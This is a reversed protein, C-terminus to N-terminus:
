ALYAELKGLLETWGREHNDRATADVFQAHHFTLLTGAGDPELEVTTLSVSVHEGDLHMDYAFVIRRDPVIAHFRSEFTHTRGSPDGGHNFERGGVRFDLEHAAGVWEQPLAFWREKLAPDAFASVVRAPASPYRREITFGAHVVTRTM